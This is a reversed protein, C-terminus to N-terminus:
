LADGNRYELSNENFFVGSDRLFGLELIHDAIRAARAKATLVPCVWVEALLPYEKRAPAAM